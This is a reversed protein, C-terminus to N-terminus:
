KGWNKLSFGREYLYENEFTIEGDKVTVKPVNVPLTGQPVSQGYATCLAVAVNLNFPGNGDADHASGYPQFACLVADTNEYCAADYPLNLSLLVTKKGAERAQEFLKVIEPNQSVSQSMVVLTDAKALEEQIMDDDATIEATCAATVKSIDCLNERAMRDLAYDVTAARSSTPFLLLVTSDASLPLVNNENKLLVMGEGAAKRSLLIHKESATVCRGDEGLPICPQYRFRAYKEM